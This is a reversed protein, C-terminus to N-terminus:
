ASAGSPRLVSFPYRTGSSPALRTVPNALVYACRFVVRLAVMDNQALNYLIDGTDPDQIVAERLVRTTFDQRIGLIAKTFDGAVLDAEDRDWAGNKLFMADQGYITPREGVNERPNSIYIPQGDQDRLGRLSGKMTVDAVMGNVDFGDAEVLAMVDSIDVDVRQGGVSGRVFSNGAARAGPIIAADTWSAPKNVGFFVAADVAKGIAESIQPVVEGMIDFDADDITAEAIPVIVAIEEAVLSKREWAASSTRKRGPPNSGSPGSVWYAEALATTVPLRHTKTPMRVTRFMSMAASAEAAQKIITNAIPEPILATANNDTIFSM